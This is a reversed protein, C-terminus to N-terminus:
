RCGARDFMDAVIIPTAPTNSWRASDPAAAHLAELVSHKTLSIDTNCRVPSIGRAEVQQLLARTTGGLAALYATVAMRAGRDGDARKALEFVQAISIMGTDTSGATQAVALTPTLSLLAAFLVPKLAPSM